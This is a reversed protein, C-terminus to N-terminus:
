EDKFQEPSLVSLGSNKETSSGFSPISQHYSYEILGILCQALIDCFELVHCKIQLLKLKFKM